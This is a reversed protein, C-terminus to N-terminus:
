RHELQAIDIIANALDDAPQRTHAFIAQAKPEYQPNFGGIGAM